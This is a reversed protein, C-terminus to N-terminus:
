KPETSYLFRVIGLRKWRRLARLFLPYYAFLNLYAGRIKRSSCEKLRSFIPDGFRQHGAGALELAFGHQRRSSACIWALLYDRKGVDLGFMSNLYTVEAWGPSMKHLHIMYTREFKSFGTLLDKRIRNSGKVTMDSMWFGLEDMRLMVTWLKDENEYADMIGPEFEAVLVRSIISTGLSLFLRLDTGQSDTKFWDIRNLGLERLVTSVHVTEITTEKVVAFRSAFEWNALAEGKPRLLSSCAPSSTLHFVSSGESGSTLARNFVHLERYVSSDKRTAVMERDDPDFAVCVSYKALKKWAPNLGGSAGVDFLIPPEEQFESRSLVEDIISM